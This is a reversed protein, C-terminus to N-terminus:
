VPRGNRVVWKGAAEGVCVALLPMYGGSLNLGAIEGRGGGRRLEEEEEGGEGREDGCEQKARDKTTGLRGKRQACFEWVVDRDM